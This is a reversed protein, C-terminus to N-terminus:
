MGSAVGRGDALLGEGGFFFVAESVRTVVCSYETAAYVCVVVLQCKRQECTCSQKKESGEEGVKKKM